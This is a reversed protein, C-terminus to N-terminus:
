KRRMRAACCFCGALIAVCTFIISSVVMTYVEAGSLAVGRVTMFTSAGVIASSSADNNSSAFIILVIGVVVAIFMLVLLYGLYRIFIELSSERKKGTKPDRPPVEIFDKFAGYFENPSADTARGPPQLLPAVVPKM